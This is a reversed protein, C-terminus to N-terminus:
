LERPVNYLIRRNHVTPRCVLFQSDPGIVEPKGMLVFGSDTPHMPLLRSGVLKNPMTPLIKHLPKHLAEAAKSGRPLTCNLGWRQRSVPM